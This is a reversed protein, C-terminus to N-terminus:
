AAKKKEELIKNLWVAGHHNEVYNILAVVVRRDFAEDAQSLLLKNAEAIPIANRWSRPSIMGIFANAAAIIRASIITQDAKLGLPGKGDWREQWQRLTEIVPGDFEIDKVLDAAIMLSDQISRREDETLVQTKTLLDQPVIIKGINMLSGAMRTAEVVVSEQEMEIAIECALHGVMMSHDAAYPDRKDVLRILTQILQHHTHIRQEREHVVESIDQEVILVGPTPEPLSAIPIHDLPVYASRVIREEGGEIMQSIGYMMKGSARAKSCFELVREARATGRVDNITKGTLDEVRMSCEDAAKKNAFQFLHNSDLIYIPEPQHDAVLRLLSEQAKAEAAIKRFHYSMMMARKSHAHWWVATIILVICAILFFFFMIMSSRRQDSDALAEKRDVKVVMVWPTNTVTRSTALVRQNRYDDKDSIFSGSTEILDPEVFKPQRNEIRKSLPESGDMLPSIFEIKDASKRLLVTELTQETVGPHKLLAFFSQDVPKVGVVRGIQEGATRGGQISFIPVSFGIKLQENIEIIDILVDQGLKAEAAHKLILDAIPPSTPTSVVINNTADLVALGSEPNETVNARIASASMTSSLYGAREATFILQSRLYTKQAPEGDERGSASKGLSQLESLYLQLAPNDALTHLENFNAAVWQSVEDHRSEAILNLKEQWTQLDRSLEMQTYKTIFFVGTVVIAAVLAAIGYMRPSFNANQSQDNTM